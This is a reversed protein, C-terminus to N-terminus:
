EGHGLLYMVQVVLVGVLFDVKVLENLGMLGVLWLGLWVWFRWHLCSLQFVCM